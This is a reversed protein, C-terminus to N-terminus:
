VVGKPKGKRANMSNQEVITIASTLFFFLTLNWICSSLDNKSKASQRKGKWVHPQRTNVPFHLRKALMGSCPWNSRVLYHSFLLQCCETHWPQRTRPVLFSKRRTLREGLSYSKAKIGAVCAAVCWFLAPNGLPIDRGAPSVCLILHPHTQKQVLGYEFFWDFVLCTSPATASQGSAPEFGALEVM